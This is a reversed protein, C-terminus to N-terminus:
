AHTANSRGQGHGERALNVDLVFEVSDLHGSPATHVVGVQNPSDRHHNHHKGRSFEASHGGHIPAEEVRKPEGDRDNNSAANGVKREQRSSGHRGRGECDDAVSALSTLM